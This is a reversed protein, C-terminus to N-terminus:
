KVWDPTEEMAPIILPESKKETDISRFAAEKNRQIQERTLWVIIEKDDKKTTTKILPHSFATGKPIKMECNDRIITKIEPTYYISTEKTRESDTERCYKLFEEDGLKRKLEIKTKIEMAFRKGKETESEAIIKDLGEILYNGVSKM